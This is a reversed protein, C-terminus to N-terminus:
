ELCQIDHKWLYLKNEVFLYTCIFVCTLTCLSLFSKVGTLTIRNQRGDGVVGGFFLLLLVQCARSLGEM